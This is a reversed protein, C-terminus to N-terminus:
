LIQRLIQMYVENAEIADEKYKERAIGILKQYLLVAEECFPRAGEFNQMKVLLKAYGKCICAIFGEFADPCIEYLNRSIEMAKEFMVLSEDYRGQERLIEGYLYCINAMYLDIGERDSGYLEKRLAYSMKCHEEAEKLDGRRYNCEALNHYFVSVELADKNGDGCSNKQIELGELLNREAEGYNEQMFQICGCLNLIWSLPVDKKGDMKNAYAREEELVERALLEAEKLRNIEKLFWALDRKSHRPEREYSKPDEEACKDALSIAERYLREAEENRNLAALDDAFVRTTYLVEHLYGDDRGILRKWIQLAERHANAAEDHRDANSLANGYLHLNEAFFREEGRPNNQCLKRSLEVAKQLNHIAEQYKGIDLLLEGLYHYCFCLTGMSTYPNKQFAIECISLSTEYLKEADDYIKEKKLMKAMHICIKSYLKMYHYSLEKEVMEWAMEYAMGSYEFAKKKDVGQYRQSLLVYLYILDDKGITPHDSIELAAEALELSKQQDGELFYAYSLMRYAELLREWKGDYNTAQYDEIAKQYYIKGKKLDHKGYLFAYGLLESVQAEVLIRDENRRTDYLKNAVSIAKDYDSKTYLLFSVYDHVTSEEIHYKVALTVIEDYCRDMELVREENLGQARLTKIRLLNEQIYGTVIELQSSVIGEAQRLEAEREQDRLIALAGEYDGRSMLQVARNERWTRKGDGAQMRSIEVCLFLVEKEAKRFLDAIRTREESIKTLERYFDDNDPNQAYRAAADAFSRDLEEKKAKWEMLSKNKGYVPVNELPMIKEGDISAEGDMFSIDGQLEPDQHMSMLFGLKISDFHTFVTYDHGLKVDLRNRFDLVSQSQRVGEPVEYFYTMIKPIGKSLFHDLAVDFEELSRDGLNRGVIIYFYRSDRIEDNYVEQKRRSHLEQPMDECVILEFYIERKAYINNLRRIFTGFEEREHKFEVISSALFIKIYKM